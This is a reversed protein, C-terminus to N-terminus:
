CYRDYNAVWDSKSVWPWEPIGCEPGCHLRAFRRAQAKSVVQWGVFHTSAGRGAVQKSQPGKSCTGGVQGTVWDGHRRMWGVSGVGGAQMMSMKFRVRDGKAQLAIVACDYQCDDGNVMYTTHGDAVAPASLALAIQGTLAVIVLARRSIRWSASSPM